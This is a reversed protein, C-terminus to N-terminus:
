ERGVRLALLCCLAVGGVGMDMSVCVNVHVCTHIWMTGTNVNACVSSYMSLAVGGGGSSNAQLCMFVHVCARACM